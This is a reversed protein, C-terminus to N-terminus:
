QFMIQKLMEKMRLSNINKILYRHSTGHDLEESFSFTHIIKGELSFHYNANNVLDDLVDNITYDERSDRIAQM